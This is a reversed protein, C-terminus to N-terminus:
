DCNDSATYIGKYETNNINVIIPIWAEKLETNDYDLKFEIKKNILKICTSNVIISISNNKKNQLMKNIIVRNLENKRDNYEKITLGYKHNNDKLYFNSCGLIKHTDINLNDIICLVGDVIGRDCMVGDIQEIYKEKKAPYNKLIVAVCDNNEIPKCTKLEIVADEIYYRDCEKYVKSFNYM